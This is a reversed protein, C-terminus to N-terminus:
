MGRLVHAVGDVVRAFREYDLTDPTDTLQHYRDNRFPGGDTVMLAPTGTRWFSWHDSLDVGVVGPPAAIGESPVTGVERFRGVCRRVWARSAHNGVFGIFDGQAPFVAGLGPPYLQSGPEDRFDGLMELSIMGQIRRGEAALADAMVVSGMLRGKFFPPEENAFAVLRLTADREGGALMHALELLGAVGSANDDAGPTPGCTDYHAGVVVLDDRRGPLDVYLNQFAGDEYAQVQVPGAGSAELQERVYAVARALAQPREFHRAGIDGALVQVHDRLRTALDEQAKSLPPRTGSFSRGPMALFRWYATAGAGLALAATSLLLHTLM